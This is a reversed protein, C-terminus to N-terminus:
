DGRFVQLAMITLAMAGLILLGAQILGKILPTWLFRGIVYKSKPVLYNDSLIDNAIEIASPDYIPRCGIWEKPQFDLFGPCLHVHHWADESCGSYRDFKDVDRKHVYKHLCERCELQEEDSEKCIVASSRKIILTELFRALHGRRGRPTGMENVERQLKLVDILLKVTSPTPSSKPKQQHIKFAM